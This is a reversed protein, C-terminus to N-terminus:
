DEEGWSSSKQVVKVKKGEKLKKSVADYPGVIIEVDSNLGELVRIYRSDQIGTKVVNKVAKGNEISFVIEDLADEGFTTSDSEKPRTSVAEIPLCDVGRAIETQIEVGASMGPLFPADTNKMLDEYSSKLIRIKVEFNTVQDASMNISGSGSASRAIETVVGTFSRDPYADVEITCTDLKSVQLIDNENVDVIVEMNNFNSIVMIETGAMQATGVVREGREANLASVVGDSPALITTRQLNKQAESLSAKANAIGFQAAAVREKAAKVDNRAVNYATTAADYEAQSIVEQEFLTTSRKYIAEQEMMRSESQALLALNTNYSSQSSNLNARARDLASLYLDPDIKLLLDGEKVTDGEQVPLDIIEGSVDASIKVEGEPRIKGNASVTSIITRKEINAVNVEVEDKNRSKGLIILVM